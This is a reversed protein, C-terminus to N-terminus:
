RRNASAFFALCTPENTTAKTMGNCSARKWRAARHPSSNKWCRQDCQDALELGRRLLQLSQELPIQGAELLSVVEDLERLAEEFSLTESPNQEVQKLKM